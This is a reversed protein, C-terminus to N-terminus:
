RGHCLAAGQNVPNGPTGLERSGCPKPVEEEIDAMFRELLTDGLDM